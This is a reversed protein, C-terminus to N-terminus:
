NTPAKSTRAVEIAQWIRSPTFPMDMHQIGFPALADLTANVLAGLSATCGSEGVGKVGLPSVSSSVPRSAMQMDPLVGARPMIYDSFSGTLLQGSHTEYLIQEGFVQGAGQAVAGQLQGEVLTQSIVM